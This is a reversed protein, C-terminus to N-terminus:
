EYRLAEMPAIRTARRAPLWAAGLAALVMVVAGAAFTVPDTASVGRLQSALVRTLLFAGVLGVALGAVTARMGQRLVLRMVDVRRAGLAMRVGLERTRGAVTFAMVGFVGLAALFTAIAAALTLLITTFRTDAVSTGIREPMTQVDWLPLGADLDHVVRRVGETLQLPNGDTRVILYNANYIQQAYPLYVLPPPAADLADMRVDGVIGVVEADDDWGVTLRIRAGLPDGDPWYRAAAARSLIAVRPADARDSPAFTRGRLLPIGMTRFYGGDIMNMAVPPPPADADTVQERITMGVNDCGGSVPLCYAAASADVGPLAALRQQAAELFAVSEASGYAQRPLTVNATLLGAPRFGPDIDRLHGLSRLMLGAGTLLVLALAVEGAILVGRARGRGSGRADDEKIAALPGTRAVKLTPLVGVLLGAVAAVAFNFLLVRAGLSASAPDAVGAPLQPAIARILDLVWTAVLLGAAGGLLGLVVSETLMVRAIAAPGAGLAVRVSLERRRRAAQTLLVNAVNVCVILLVFAVAGMLVTLMARVAPHVRATALPLSTFGLEVPGFADALPLAPEVVRAKAALRPALMDDSAGPTRAIVAHWFSLSGRLRNRFTLSPAMMMPVFVDARESLGRFGAEAIGVVTFPVTNLRITRGVITTDAGFLTTWAHHSLVAVPAEGPVRDEDPTFTRGAAARIGLLPFYTASVFEARARQPEGATELNYAAANPTYAAISGHLAPEADRFAEFMPYSWFRLTDARGDRAALTPRILRLGDPEPFPPPRLVAADIASFIATNAGIGIALTAIVVAAIAPRRAIQRLAYRLDNM